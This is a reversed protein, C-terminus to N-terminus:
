IGLDKRLEALEQRNLREMKSLAPKDIVYLKRKGKTIIIQTGADNWDWGKAMCYGRALGQKYALDPNGFATSTHTYFYNLEEQVLALFQYHHQLQQNTFEDGSFYAFVDSAWIYEDGNEDAYKKLRIIM